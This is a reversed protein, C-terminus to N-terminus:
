RHIHPEKVALIKFLNGKRKLEQKSYIENALIVNMSINREWIIVNVLTQDTLGLEEDFYYPEASGSYVISKLNSGSVVIRFPFANYIYEYILLYVPLTLYNDRGRSGEVRLIIPTM